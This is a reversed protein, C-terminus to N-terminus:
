KMVFLLAFTSAIVHKRKKPELIVATPSQLWSILLCNSRPLFPIVFISLTKLFCLCWEASLPRYLWPQPRGLPWTHNHSSSQSSSLTGFFQHKQVTISSFVGSLEKSLLSILSNLWLSILRSYEKSLSISFSFSHYKPWRIRLALQNSFNRFVSASVSATTNQDDSAFPWSIPFTGSAPFYQPSFSFLADSSSIAPHYWRHLSCSSPYVRPYPSPCPPRTDQLGHLRLSNSMFPCSFSLHLAKGKLEHHHIATLIRSYHFLISSFGLSECQPHIASSWNLNLLM